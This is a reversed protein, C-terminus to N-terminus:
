WKGGLPESGIIFVCFGSVFLVIGIMLYLWSFLIPMFLPPNSHSLIMGFGIGFSLAGTIDRIILLTTKM